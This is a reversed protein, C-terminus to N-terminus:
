GCKVKGGNGIGGMMIYDGPQLELSVYCSPRSNFASEILKIPKIKGDVMEVRGVLLRLIEYSYKEDFFKQHKQHISCHATTPQKISFLLSGQHSNLQSQHFTKYFYHYGYKVLSYAIVKFSQMVTQSDAWFIGNKKEEEGISNETQPPMVMSTKNRGTPDRIKLYFDNNKIKYDLLIYSHKPTIYDSTTQALSDIVAPCFNKFIKELERKIKAKDKLELFESPAGTLDRLADASYGIKLIQYHGYLQAYAKELVMPSIDDGIPPSYVKPFLNDVDISVSKGSEFM